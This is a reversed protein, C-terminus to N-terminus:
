ADSMTAEGKGHRAASEPTPRETPPLVTSRAHGAPIAQCTLRRDLRMSKNRKTSRKARHAGALSPRLMSQAPPRRITPICRSGTLGSRITGICRVHIRRIPRLPQPQTLRTPAKDAPPLQRDAVLSHCRSIRSTVQTPQRSWLAATTSPFAPALASRSYSRRRRRRSSRARSFSPPNPTSRARTISSGVEVVTQSGPRCPLLDLSRNTQCLMQLSAGDAHQVIAPDAAVPLRVDVM